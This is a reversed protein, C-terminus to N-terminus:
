AVSGADDPKRLLRSRLKEYGANGLVGKALTLARDRITMRAFEWKDQGIWRCFQGDSTAALVALRPIRWQGGQTNWLGARSSCIGRYGICQAIDAVRPTLRGGPPAFLVVAQGVRDEIRAKSGSLEQEVERDSLEDFYRHTDGHSQISIGAKALDALAQWDLYQPQGVMTPNVFLDASGGHELIDISAAANSEHGDDFTFAVKGAAQGSDLIRVVSSASCGIARVQALHRRFASRAVTYHPDANGCEVDTGGIAHYMLVALKTM